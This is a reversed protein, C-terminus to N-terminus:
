VIETISQDESSSHSKPAVPIANELRSSCGMVSNPNAAIRMLVAFEGIGTPVSNGHCRARWILRGLIQDSPSPLQAAVATEILSLDRIANGAFTTPLCACTSQVLESNQQFSLAPRGFCM